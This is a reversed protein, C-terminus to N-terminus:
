PIGPAGCSASSVQTYSDVLHGGHPGIDNGQVGTYIAVPGTLNTGGPVTLGTASLTVGWIDLLSQVSPSYSLPSTTSTSQSYNVDEIHVLGSFDHTHINYECDQQEIEYLDNPHGGPANNSPAMPETPNKMAIGSPLSEETGNYYIGVFSHVSYTGPNQAPEVTPTCPMKDMTKFGTKASAGQITDGFAAVPPQGNRQAWLATTGALYWGVSGNVQPGEQANIALGKDVPVGGSPTATPTPTPTPTNTPKVTPTPSPSSSGGGGPQTTPGTVPPTSGGGGGGCAALVASIALLPICLRLFKM